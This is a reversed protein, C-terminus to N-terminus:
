EGAREFAVLIQRSISPFNEKMIENVDNTNTGFHSVAVDGYVQKGTKDFISYHVMLDRRYIKLALNICDESHTKIDMENLIIIYDADYKEAYDPILMEDQVTANIYKTEPKIKNGSKKKPLTDRVAFKKPDKLTYVSDTSFMLSHYLAETDRNDGRVFDNNVRKMDYVEAFNKNLEKLLGMRLTERMQQPNMESGQSIDPDADSLHMAPMYPIILVSAHKIGADSSDTTAPQNQGHSRGAIFTLLSLFVFTIKM